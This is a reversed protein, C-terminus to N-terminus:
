VVLEVSSFGVVIDGEWENPIGFGMQLGATGRLNLPLRGDQGLHYIVIELVDSYEHACETMLTLDVNMIDKAMMGMGEKNMGNTILHNEIEMTGDAPIYMLACQHEDFNIM